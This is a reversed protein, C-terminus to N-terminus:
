LNAIDFTSVAVLLLPELILNHKMSSRSPDATHQCVLILKEKPAGQRVWERASYDQFTYLLYVVVNLFPM